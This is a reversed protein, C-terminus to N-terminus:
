VLISDRRSYLFTFLSLLSVCQVAGELFMAFFARTRISRVDKM